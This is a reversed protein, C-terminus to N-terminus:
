APANSLLYPLGNNISSREGWVSSDFGAPLGSQLQTTTLGSVGSANPTDGVGQSLNTIGSTTTDWYTDLLGQGGKGILGGVTSDAGGTAAGTSYSASISGNSGAGNGGVLGGVVAMPGGSVAGLAYSNMILGSRATNGVLGGVAASIGGAVKGTAYSSFVAGDDEGVLGGAAPLRTMSNRGVTVISGAHSNTVVAADYNVGVLGGVQTTGDGGVVSGAAYCNGILELNWAALGGASGSCSVKGATPLRIAGQVHDGAMSGQNIAALGGVLNCEGAAKIDAKALGLNEILGGSGLTDFLGAHQATGKVAITLKSIANGLGEFRGTFTTAIPTSTYTGDAGANYNAALAYDGSPNVAIDSALEAVSGVLAYAKGNIALPNSLGLFSIHGAGSFSFAGSASGDNFVITLGGVGAVSVPKEIKISRYADLTLAHKSAWTLAAAVDIDNVRSALTGSGTTVKVSHAAIMNELDGVNLVAAKATPSCVGASCAMNKTANSSITVAAESATSCLIAAASLLGLKTNLHRIGARM